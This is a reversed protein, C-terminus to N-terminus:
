LCDAIEKMTLRDHMNMCWCKELLAWLADDLGREAVVPDTPRPPTEGQCVKLIVQTALRVSKWPEEHTMLELVTMSFAYVDSAMTRKGGSKCLEAPCWRLSEQNLTSGSSVDFYSMIEEELRTFGFNSLLPRGDPAKIDGHVVSMSHLLKIGEVIGKLMYRHDVEPYEYIYDQLTGNSMWPSVTYPYDGDSQCFGYITLIHEGKDAEFITRWIEAETKFRKLTKPTVYVARLVRIAVKENNLYCGEWVDTRSTGNVAYNSTRRVEGRKLNMNPLLTRSTQLLNYLNSELGREATTSVHGPLNEQMVTLIQHVVTTQQLQADMLIEQTNKLDGLYQVMHESDIRQNEEFASQWKHIELHSNIQLMNLCDSIQLHCQQIVGALEDQKVFLKVRSMLCWPTMRDLIGQLASQASSSLRIKEDAAMIEGESKIVTLFGLCREELQRMGNRNSEAKALLNILITLVSFAPALWTLPTAQTAQSLPSAANIHFSSAFTAM